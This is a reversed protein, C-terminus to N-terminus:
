FRRSPGAPGLGRPQRVNMSVPLRASQGDALRAPMVWQDRFISSPWAVFAPPVALSEVPEDSEFVWTRGTFPSVFPNLRFM